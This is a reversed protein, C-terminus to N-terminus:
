VFIDINKQKCIENIRKHIAKALYVELDSLDSYPLYKISKSQLQKVKNLEKKWATQCAATSKVFMFINDHDFGKIAKKIEYSVVPSYNDELIIVIWECISLKEDIHAYLKAIRFKDYEILHPPNFPYSNVKRLNEIREEAFKREPIDQKSSIFIDIVSLKKKIEKQVQQTPLKKRINLNSIKGNQFLGISIGLTLISKEDSTSPKKAFIILPIINAKPIDAIRNLYAPPISNNSKVLVLYIFKDKKFILDPQWLLKSPANSIKLEVFHKAIFQERLKDLAIM